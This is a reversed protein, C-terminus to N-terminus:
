IDGLTEHTNETPPPETPEVAEAQIEYTVLEGTSWDHVIQKQNM